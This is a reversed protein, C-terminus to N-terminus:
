NNKSNVVFRGNVCYKKAVGHRNLISCNVPKPNWCIDRYIKLSDLAVREPSHFEEAYRRAERSIEERLTRNQILKRLEEALSEKTANVVPLRPQHRTLPADVGPRLYLVVVKGLAMVDVATCGFWGIRLQDVVIDADRWLKQVEDAHVPPQRAVFDFELKPDAQLVKMTELVWPSGKTLPNSPLHVILPRKRNSQGIFPTGIAYAQHLVHRVPYLGHAVPTEEDTKIVGSASAFALDTYRQKWTDHAAASLKALRLYDDMYHYPSHIRFESDLRVDSGATQFVVCKGLRRLHLLDEFSERMSVDDGLTIHLHFIDASDQIMDMVSKMKKPLRKCKTYSFYNWTDRIGCYSKMGIMRQAQALMGTQGSGMSYGLFVRKTKVLELQELSLEDNRDTALCDGFMVTVIVTGVIVCVLAFLLKRNM